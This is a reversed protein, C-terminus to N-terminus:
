CFEEPKQVGLQLDSSSLMRSGMDHFTKYSKFITSNEPLCSVARSHSANANEQDLEKESGLLLQSTGDQGLKPFM